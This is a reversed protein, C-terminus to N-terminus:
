AGSSRGLRENAEEARGAMDTMRKTRRTLMYPWALAFALDVAFLGWDGVFAHAIALGVWVGAFVLVIWPSRIWVFRGGPSRLTQAREVAAPALEPDHM